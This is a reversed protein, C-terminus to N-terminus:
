EVGGGGFSRAVFRIVYRVGLFLGVTMLGAVLGMLAPGQLDVGQLYSQWGNLDVTVISGDALGSIDIVANTTGRLTDVQDFQWTGPPYALSGHVPHEVVIYCGAQITIM